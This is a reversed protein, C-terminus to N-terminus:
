RPDLLRRLASVPLRRALAEVDRKGGYLEIVLSQVAGSRLVPRDVTQTIHDVATASRFIRETKPDALLVRIITVASAAQGPAVPMAVRGGESSAAESGEMGITTVEVAAAGPIPFLRPAAGESALGSPMAVESNVYVRQELNPPANDGSKRPEYVREASAAGPRLWTAHAEDWAAIEDVGFQNSEPDLVYGRPV